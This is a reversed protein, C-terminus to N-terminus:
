FLKRDRFVRTGVVKAEDDIDTLVSAGLAIFNKSGIRLLNSAIAGPGFWNDDGVFTSGCIKVGAALKNRKGLHVGHSINVHCSTKTHDGVVTNTHRWIARDVVSSYGIEVNEGIILGGLHDTMYPNGSEDDKIDMANTGLRCGTRIITNDGITTGAEVTVFPEITVNRGVTVGCEDIIATEHVKASEDIISPAHEVQSRLSNHLRYFNLKTNRTPVLRVRSAHELDRIDVNESVLVATVNERSLADDLFEQSTVFTLLADGPSWVFGMETAPLLDEEPRLLCEAIPQLSIWNSVM